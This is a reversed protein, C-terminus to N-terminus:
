RAPSQQRPRRARPEIEVTATQGASLVVGKPVHDIHVRVPIRQALRVWTFIPNVTALGQPGAHANPVNIGRAISGVHGRVIDSYGMLKIRVPDGERISGLATETFYGDVWFSDADVLSIKNQGVTAYDGLRTLLNTVWGNVPSRIQTRRLNVKAQERQAKAQALSAEAGARQVKLVEVQREALKLSAEASEVAAQKERQEASFQQASQVPGYGKQALDEYRVAQQQAFVLSAKAQEVQAQGANVQAQQVAIQAGVNQVNAQAQQVAAEALEVAIQYDTPDIVMLLEGKAVFQNDTVPLDVIRGAVEPAMTVTYVRVTGDRTWPWEMYANWMAWGVGVALATTALTILVPIIRIRAKHIARVAPEVSSVVRLDAAKGRESKSEVESM